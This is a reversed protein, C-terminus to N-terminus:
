RARCKKDRSYSNGVSSALTLTPDRLSQGSSKSHPTLDRHELYSPTGETALGVGYGLAIASFLNIHLHIAQNKKKAHALSLDSFATEEKEMNDGGGDRMHIKLLRRQLEKSSIDCYNEALFDGEDIALKSAASALVSRNGLVAGDESECTGQCKAHYLNSYIAQQAFSKTLHLTHKLSTNETHLKNFSEKESIDMARPPLAQMAGYDFSGVTDNRM